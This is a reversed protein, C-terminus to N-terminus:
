MYIICLLNFPVSGFPVLNLWKLAYNMPASYATWAIIECPYDIAKGGPIECQSNVDCAEILM